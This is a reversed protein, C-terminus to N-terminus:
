RSEVLEVIKDVIEAPARGRFDIIGVIEANLNQLINEIAKRPSAWGYSTLAIIKKKRFRIKERVLDLLYKMAPFVSAEYTSLGLIVTSSDFIDSLADGISAQSDSLFAHKRVRYGESVLEEEVRRMVDHLFGYMSSYVMTVKRPDVLEGRSARYYYEIIKAPNRRWVVGHAPAVVEIELNLSRVKDINRSVYEIYHGIVTVIYKRVYELYEDISLDEDFVSHPISFAGFADCTLLTKLEEVFSMITDPWHLWPTHIFTVAYNGFRVRELDKVPHPEFDIGYFSRLMSLALSHGYVAVRKGVSKVLKPLAGSHDPETHHVVLAVVDRPDVVRRLEEVFLDAYRSRWTDFIVAGENTTLVYSNYTIGEPISWLSEFYKTEDDDVRLVYLDRVM